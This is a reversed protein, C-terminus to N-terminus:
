AALSGRRRTRIVAGAAGFGLILMAWTAPEPVVGAPAPFDVSVVADVAQRADFVGSFLLADGVGYVGVNWVDRERCCNLRGTLSLRTLTAQRALQITLKEGGGPSASFYPTGAYIDIADIPATSFGSSVASAVAGEAESAVNVLSGLELASVDYIQLYDPLASTIEIRVAGVVPTAASAAAAFAVACAGTLGAIFHRVNPM